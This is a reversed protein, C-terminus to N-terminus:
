KTIRLVQKQTSEEEDPLEQSIIEDLERNSILKVMSIRYLNCYYQRSFGKLRSIDEYGLPTKGGLGYTLAIVEQERETLKCKKFIQLIIDDRYAREFLAEESYKTDVPEKKRTLWNERMQDLSILKAKAEREDYIKSENSGADGELIWRFKTRDDTISFESQRIIASVMERKARQRIVGKLAKRDKYCGYLLFKLSKILGINGEQILDEIELTKDIEYLSAAVLAIESQYSKVLEELAENDEKSIRKLLEVEYVDNPM